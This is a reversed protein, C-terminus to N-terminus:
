CAFFETSNSMLLLNVLKRSEYSHVSYSRPHPTCVINSAKTSITQVYGLINLNDEDKEERTLPLLNLLEVHQELGIVHQVDIM